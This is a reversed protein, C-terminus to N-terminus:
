HWHGRIVLALAAAVAAGVVASVAAIIAITMLQGRSNLRERFLVLYTALGILGVLAMAVGGVYRGRGEGWMPLIILELAVLTALFGIEDPKMKLTDCTKMIKIIRHVTAVVM